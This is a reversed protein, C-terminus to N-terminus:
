GRARQTRRGNGNARLRHVLVGAVDEVGPGARIDALEADIRAPTVDHRGILEKQTEHNVGLRSLRSQVQILRESDGDPPTPPPALGRMLSRMDRGLGGSGM